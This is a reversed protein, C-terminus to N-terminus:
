YAAMARLAFAVFTTLSGAGFVRLQATHDSVLKSLHMSRSVPDLKSEDTETIRILPLSVLAYALYTFPLVFILYAVAGLGLVIPVLLTSVAIVFWLPLLLLKKWSSEMKTWPDRGYLFAEGFFFALALLRMNAAVFDFLNPSTMSDLDFHPLAKALDTANLFGTAFASLGVIGLVLGARDQWAASPLIVVLWVDLALAVLYVLLAGIKWTRSM